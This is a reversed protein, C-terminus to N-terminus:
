RLWGRVVVAVESVSVTGWDSHGSVMTAWDLRYASIIEMSCSEKKGYQSQYRVFGKIDPDVLQSYNVLVRGRCIGSCFLVHFAM